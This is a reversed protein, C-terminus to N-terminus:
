TMALSCPPRGRSSRSCRDAPRTRTKTCTFPLGEGRARVGRRVVAPPAKLLVPEGSNVITSRKPASAASGAQGKAYKAMIRKAAESMPAVGTDSSIDLMSEPSLGHM